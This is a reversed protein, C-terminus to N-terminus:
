KPEASRVGHQEERTGRRERVLRERVLQERGRQARSPVAPPAGDRSRFSAVWSRGSRSPQHNVAAAVRPGAPSM